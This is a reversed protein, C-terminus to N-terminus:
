YYILGSSGDRPGDSVPAGPKPRPEPADPIPGTQSGTCARHSRVRSSAADEEGEEKFVIAADRVRVMYEEASGICKTKNWFLM